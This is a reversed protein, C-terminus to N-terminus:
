LILKNRNDAANFIEESDLITQKCGDRGQNEQSLPYCQRVSSLARKQLIFKQRLPYYQNSNAEFRESHLHCVPVKFILLTRM